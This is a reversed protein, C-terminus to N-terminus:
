SIALISVFSIQPQNQRLHMILTDRCTAHVYVHALVFDVGSGKRHRRTSENDKRQTSHQVGCKDAATLLGNITWFLM